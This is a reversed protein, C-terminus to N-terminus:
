VMIYKLFLSIDILFLFLIMSNMNIMVQKVLLNFGGERYGDVEAIILKKYFRIEVKELKKIFRYKAEKVM